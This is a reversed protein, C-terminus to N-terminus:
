IGLLNKISQTTVWFNNQKSVIGNVSVEMAGMRPMVQYFPNEDDDNPILQCYIDSMAYKKPVLNFVVEANPINELIANKVVFNYIM